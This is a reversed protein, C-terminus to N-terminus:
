YVTVSIYQLGNADQEIFLSGRSDGYKILEKAATECPSYVEHVSGVAGTLEVAGTTYYSSSTGAKVHVYLFDADAAEYLAGAMSAVTPYARNRSQLSLANLKETEASGASAEVNDIFKSAKDISSNQLIIYFAIAGVLLITSFLMKGMDISERSLM